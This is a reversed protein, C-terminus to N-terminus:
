RIIIPNYAETNNNEIAEIFERVQVTLTERVTEGMGQRKVYGFSSHMRKEYKAILKKAGERKLYVAQTENASEFDSPMLDNDNVLELVISDAVVPRWEEMLDSALAPHGQKLEHMIGVYPNLGCNNIALLVDNFLLTYAFSLAANIEDLPPQKTRGTFVYISPIIKSM